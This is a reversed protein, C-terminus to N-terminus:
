LNGVVKKLSFICYDKKLGYKEVDKLVYTIIYKQDIELLRGNEFIITFQISDGVQYDRDNERLEFTKIGVDLLAYYEPKIKIKHLKM